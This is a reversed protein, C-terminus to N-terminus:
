NFTPGQNSNSSYLFPLVFVPPSPYVSPSWSFCSLSKAYLLVCLPSIRKRSQNVIILLKTSSERLSSASSRISRTGRETCGHKIVPPFIEHDREAKGASFFRMIGNSVGQQNWNFKQSWIIQTYWCPGVCSDKLMRGRNGISCLM